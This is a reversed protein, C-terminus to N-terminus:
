SGNSSGGIREESARASVSPQVYMGALTALFRWSCTRCALQNNQAFRLQWRPSPPDPFAIGLVRLREEIGTAM